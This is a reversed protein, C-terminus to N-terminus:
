ILQLDPGPEYEFAFIWCNKFFGVEESEGILRLFKFKKYLALVMSNKSGLNQLIHDRIESIPTCEQVRFRTLVPFTADLALVYVAFETSQINVVPLTYTLFPDFTISV